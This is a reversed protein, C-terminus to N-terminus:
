EVRPQRWNLWAYGIAYFALHAYLVRSWLTIAFTPQDYGAFVRTWASFSWFVAAHLVLTLLGFRRLWHNSQRSTLYMLALAAWFVGALVVSYLALALTLSEM